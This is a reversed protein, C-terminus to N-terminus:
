SKGGKIKQKMKFGYKLEFVIPERYQKYARAMTMRDVIFGNSTIMDMIRPINWIWGAQYFITGEPKLHKKVQAFFREHVEWLQKDNEDYPYDINFIVVDFKENTKVPAFLDGLRVDIKDELGHYKVNYLTNKVANPNIDTAVVKKAKAAAFLAQVGSGSGIDLVVDGEKFHTHELLFVSQISPVVTDDTVFIEKKNVLAKYRKPDDAQYGYYILEYKGPHDVVERYDTSTTACATISLIVIFITSIILRHRFVQTASRQPLQQTLHLLRIRM